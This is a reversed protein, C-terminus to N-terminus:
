TDDALAGRALTEARTRPTRPDHHVTERELSRATREVEGTAEGEVECGGARGKSSVELVLGNEVQRRGGGM